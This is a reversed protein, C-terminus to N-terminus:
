LVAVDSDSWIDPGAASPEISPFAAGSIDLIRTSAQLTEGLM